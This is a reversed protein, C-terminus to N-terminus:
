APNTSVPSANSESAMVSMSMNFSPTTGTVTTVARVFAKTGGLDLAHVVYATATQQAIATSGAIATYAGGLPAAAM